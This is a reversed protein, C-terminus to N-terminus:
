INGDMKEKVVAAFERAYYHPTLYFMSRCGKTSVDKYGVAEALKKARFVHYNSSVIVVKNEASGGNEEIVQLAYLLNEKTTTSKSETYLRSVDIGLAELREVIAEGESISEGEGRGGTGLALANPNEHMYAAAAEIRRALAFSPQMGHVKEGLVIVYAADPEPARQGEAVIAMETLSFVFGAILLSVLLFYRLFKPFRKFFPASLGICTIGVGVIMGFLDFWHTVGIIAVVGLGYLFCLVGAIIFIEGFRKM